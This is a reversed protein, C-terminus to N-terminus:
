QSDGRLVLPKIHSVLMVCVLLAEPLAGVLSALGIIFSVKGSGRRLQYVGM